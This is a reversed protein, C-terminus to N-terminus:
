IDEKEVEVVDAMENLDEDLDSTDELLEDDISEEIDVEIDLVAGLLEEETGFPLIKATEQSARNRSRKTTTLIEYISGCKPCTIPSRQLDYFRSSCSQCTRKVGWAVKVVDL